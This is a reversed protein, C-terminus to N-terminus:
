RVILRNKGIENLTRKTCIHSEFNQLGRSLIFIAENEPINLTEVIETVLLNSLSLANNELDSVLNFLFFFIDYGYRLM